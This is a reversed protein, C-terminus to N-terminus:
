QTGDGTAYRASGPHVAPSRGDSDGPTWLCGPVARAADSLAGADPVSGTGPSAFTGPPYEPVRTDLLTGAGHPTDWPHVTGATCVGRWKGSDGVGGPDVACISATAYEVECIDGWRIVRDTTACWWSWGYEGRPM